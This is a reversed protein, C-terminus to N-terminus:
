SLLRALPVRWLGGKDSPKVQLSINKFAENVDVHGQGEGYSVLVICGLLFLQPLFSDGVSFISPLM